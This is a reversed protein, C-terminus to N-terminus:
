SLDQPPTITEGRWSTPDAGERSLVVVYTGVDTPIAIRAIYPTFEDVSSGTGLVQSVPINAPDVASYKEQGETSMLPSLQAWWEEYALTPQAFAVMVADAQVIAGARSADDWVAESRAPAPTDFDEGTPLGTPDEATPTSALPSALATPTRTVVPQAAEGTCSAILGAGVLAVAAIQHGRMKVM